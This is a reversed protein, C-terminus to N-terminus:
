VAPIGVRRVTLRTWAGVYVHDGDVLLCPVGPVLPVTRLGPGDGGATVHTGNTSSLDVVTLQDGDVVFQAHRRSVGTDDDVVVEPPHDDDSSSRGVLSTGDGLAVRRPPTPAVPPDAPTGRVAFWAEDAEIVVEWPSSM